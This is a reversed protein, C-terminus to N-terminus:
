RPLRTLSVEVGISESAGGSYIGKLPSVDAYDRGRGVTIHSEGVELGNTPDCAWWGGNWIEVWAHSEGTVSEGIDGETPYLYGSVYRAPIGVARLLSLTVHTYDQCVGAGAAWAEAATTQVSTSGSIYTMKNAVHELVLEIVQRPSELARLEELVGARSEDVNADDVYDSVRLYECWADTVKESTMTEWNVGEPLDAVAPTDVVSHSVVELTTHSEHVDFTEVVTGWYDKYAVIRAAPSVSLEHAILLQGASDAPAMRAENFSVSVPSSYRLGTHHTVELRWSM